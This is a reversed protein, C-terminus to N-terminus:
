GIRKRTIWRVSTPLTHQRSSACWTEIRKVVIPKVHADWGYPPNAALCDAKSVCLAM